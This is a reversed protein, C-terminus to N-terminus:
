DARLASLPDAAAARRAPLYSAALAVVLFLASMAAFTALDFPSVGFLWGAIVRTAAAALVLGIAIGVAALRMGDRVMLRLVSSRAAGLAVRIGIERTRRSASFAMIGYLGVAALLLGAGGLIGTVIAAVRQPLLAIASADHLTTVRPRPLLPDISLVAEEIALRLRRPDAATRVLLAQTPQWVQAVPVYAFAPTTEDLRAYKADRAIGVVTTLTDRFRFTRGVASGGPWARRALTENIVAVRAAREDDSRSIDRGEVLPLELASLYGAGVSAYHISLKGGDVIVDDISSGMMLPVRGTYSVAAVGPLAEVRDRLSRYFRRAKAEDYGWAEPELSTMAVHAREFGADIRRAHDLARIFLGGAVLLVLSLALQGVILARSLLMGRSGAGASDARLRAAIDGRAARFAPALGFLLGTLLSVGLAFALVRGDPSLELSLRVNDPLPLRELAATALVAVAFGGVAGLLFLALIETLLQRLLRARGAGLAARVAMERSRAVYRASLMAAVNVGGILLVLAAAGLLVSMFGLLAPGEGNPLGTLNSVLVSPQAGAASIQGLAAARTVALASLEHQAAEPGVGDRLRGFMWLWSAHTLDSRPRLQPQMKLPVWADILMGTYVGRFPPSAVGIVTFPLGNVIVSRGIAARDAGLRSSWFQHSVVIVPHSGPTRDEETTFFRGLAPRVGLVDFYSATVMNGLITTGQGAAAVTLSVRGWAAIGELTATHERLHTYYSFSAQEAATGDSRVPRLGILRERGAIGPLPRLVTANMASFITSVAGSGLSITLVVVATFVPSKRLMRAAFTADALSTGVIREWGHDRVRERVGLESGLERRAARRAEAPPLGRAVHAETAEEIYHRVEDDLDRDAAARNVLVRLGRTLQRWLGM